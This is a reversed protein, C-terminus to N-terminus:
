RNLRNLCNQSIKECQCVFFLITVSTFTLRVHLIPNITLQTGLLLYKRTQGWELTVELKVKTVVFLSSAPIAKKKEGTFSKLKM